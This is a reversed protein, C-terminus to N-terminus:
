FAVAVFLFSLAAAGAMGAAVLVAARRNGFLYAYVAKMLNNSATAVVVAQLIQPETIGLNGQLISVIFPVIDSAGVLFSLMRLGLDKFHLLVFKTVVTVVVFMLAFLLAANIELPNRDKVEVEGTGAAEPAPGGRVWWAYGAVLGSLALFPGALHLAGGPMFAAVLFLIRLYMTPTSLLIAAATERAEGPLNRTRKSLVLTTMTSSYLGGIIGTLLMGKRPFLYTQLVYGTYSIATTVVVAMWIQRPTVPLITFVKAAWGTMPVEAPILPLVVATIALFKCVTVVEGTELRDTFKRIRGKSHLVLLITVGLASLYWHPEHIAIPGIHYTLMAILVGILGPSQQQTVKNRYYVVLFAGLVAMGMLFAYPGLGPIRYAIFGLIGIFIFTRVTGFTDFKGEGEYYERLGIGILASIAITLLFPTIQPPIM